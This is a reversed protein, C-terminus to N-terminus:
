RENTLGSKKDNRPFNGLSRTKIASSACLMPCFCTCTTNDERLISLFIPKYESRRRMPYVPCRQRRSPIPAKAPSSSARNKGSAAHFTTRRRDVIVPRAQSPDASPKPQETGGQLRRRTLNAQACLDCSDLRHCRRHLLVSFRPFVVSAPCM